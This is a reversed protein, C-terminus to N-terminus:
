ILKLSWAKAPCSFFSKTKPLIEAFFKSNRYDNLHDKSIWVSHTFFTFQDSADQYLKLQILGPQNEIDKKIEDFFRMFEDKYQAQFTMKVLRLIM